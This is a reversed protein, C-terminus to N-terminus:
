VLVDKEDSRIRLSRGFLSQLLDFAPGQRMLVIDELHFLGDVHGLQHTSVAIM